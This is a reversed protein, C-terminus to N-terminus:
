GRRRIMRSRTAREWAWSSTPKSAPSALAGLAFVHILLINEAGAVWRLEALQTGAPRLVPDLVSRLTRPSHQPGRFSVSASSAENRLSEAQDRSSRQRNPLAPRSSFHAGPKERRHHRRASAVLHASKPAHERLHTLIRSLSIAGVAGFRSACPSSASGSARRQRRLPARALRSRRARCWTRVRSSSRLRALRACTCRDHRDHGWWSREGPSSADRRM